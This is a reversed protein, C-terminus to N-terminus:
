RPALSLRAEGPREPESAPALRWAHGQWYWLAYAEMRYPDMEREDVRVITDPPLARVEAATAQFPQGRNLSESTPTFALAIMALAGAGFALWRQRASVALQPRRARLCPWVGDRFGWAGVPALPSYIPHIYHPLQFGVLSFPVFYALAFVGAVRSWAQANRASGHRWAVAYGVPVTWWWPWGNKLVIGVYYFISGHGAHSLDGREGRASRLVQETVYGAIWELSGREVMAGLWILFPLFAAFTVLLAFFFRTALSPGESCAAKFSTSIRDESEAETASADRAARTPLGRSLWSAPACVVILTAGWAGLGAIGKAATALALGACTFLMALGVSWTRADGGSATPHAISAPGAASFNFKNARGSARRFEFSGIAAMLVGFSLPAELLCSAAFKTFHGFSALGFAVLLGVTSGFRARSWLSALAYSAFGFIGGIARAAGDSEGLVRLVWAGWQFFFPPHEYFLPFFGGSGTLRWAEGTVLVRRSLGAYLAADPQLGPRTALGFFVLLGLLLIWYVEERASRSANM